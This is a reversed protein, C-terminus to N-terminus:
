SPGQEDRLKFWLGRMAVCSLDYLVILVDRPDAALNEVAQVGVLQPLEGLLLQQGLGADLDQLRVWRRPRRRRPQLFRLHVCLLRSYRLQSEKRGFSAHCLIWTGAAVEGLEVVDGHRWKLRCRADIALHRCRCRRGIRIEIVEFPLGSIVIVSSISAASAWRVPQAL